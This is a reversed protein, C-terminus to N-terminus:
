YLDPVNQYYYTSPIVYWNLNFGTIRTVDTCLHLGPECVLVCVRTYVYVNVHAGVCLRM